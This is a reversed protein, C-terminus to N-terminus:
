GDGCVQEDRAMLFRGWGVLAREQEAEHSGLAALRRLQVLHLELQDTLVEDDHAGRLVFVSVCRALAKYEDGRVLQSDMTQACGICSEATTAGGYPVDRDSM